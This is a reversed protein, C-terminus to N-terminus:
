SSLGLNAWNNGWGIYLDNLFTDWAAQTRSPPYPVPRVPTESSWVITFQGNPNIQGIRVTKWTHQTEADIYVIGSPSNYSQDKITERVLSVDASQAEEVAQKWMYVGLYAAEMPDSIVRDQGYKARFNQVFAQNEPTQVSQFYNWAAYDGVVDAINMTLLEPEAISFSVTPITESTIGAARLAQFFAINSDGNITNLIVDPQAAVIQEVVAAVDVSGLLIYAEGVIEGRLATVQDRIIANATHPFVYDSGVLFFRKGLNDLSWKIAPVIQQNPSAGTYVINPSTELGEYQVPYILLHNLREFVPRVTKRCASTWCGFIVEVNERIILREAEDAFVTWDSEGDVVIPEIRRGLVGGQQNIEEIALLTADRVAVESIAMTGSLSHLVGVKIPAQSSNAYVVLGGVVALLVAVVSVIQWRRMGIISEWYGSLSM